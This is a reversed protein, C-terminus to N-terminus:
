RGEAETSPTAGPEGCVVMGPTWGPPVDFGYALACLRDAGPHSFVAGWGRTGATVFDVIMGDPLDLRMQEDLSDLATTYTYHQSYHMEQASAMGKITGRLLPLLEDEPLPEVGTPPDHSGGLWTPVPRSEGVEVLRHRHVFHVGAEGTWVGLLHDGDVDTLRFATPIEVIREPTGESGLVTWHRSAGSGPERIWLDGDRARLVWRYGPTSRPPPLRDLRARTEARTEPTLAGEVWFRGYLWADLGFVSDGSLEAARVYRGLEGELDYVAVADMFRESAFLSDAGHRYLRALSRFEEPGDGRSGWSREHEGEASYISIRTAGADSVALRGDSIQVVSEIAAFTYAEDGDLVGITLTPESLTMLPLSTPLTTDDSGAGACGVALVLVGLLRPRGPRSEARLLTM